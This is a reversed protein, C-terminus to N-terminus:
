YQKNCAPTAPCIRIRKGLVATRIFHLMASAVQRMKVGLTQVARKLSWKTDISTREIVPEVQVQSPRVNPETNIAALIDLAKIVRVPNFRCAATERLNRLMTKRLWAPCAVPSEIVCLDKIDNRFRQWRKAPCAFYLRYKSHGKRFVNIQHDKAKQTITQECDSDLAKVTFESGDMKRQRKRRM